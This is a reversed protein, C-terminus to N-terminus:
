GKSKSFSTTKFQHRWFDADEKSIKISDFDLQQHVTSCFSQKLKVIDHENIFTKWILGDNRIDWPKYHFDLRQGKAKQNAVMLMALTQQFWFMNWFFKLLNHVWDTRHHIDDADDGVVLSRKQFQDSLRPETICFSPWIMSLDSRTKFFIESRPFMTM